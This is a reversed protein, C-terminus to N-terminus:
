VAMKILLGFNKKKVFKEMKQITKDETTIEVIKKDTAADIEGVTQRSENFIQRNLELINNVKDRFMNLQVQGEFQRGIYVNRFNHEISDAMGKDAVYQKIVPVIEETVIDNLESESVNQILDMETTVLTDDAANLGALTPAIYPVLSGGGTGGVALTPTGPTFQPIFDSGGGDGAWAYAPSPFPEMSRAAEIISDKAIKATTKLGNYLAQRGLYISQAVDQQSVFASGAIGGALGGWAFGWKYPDDSGFSQAYVISGLNKAQDIANTIGHKAACATFEMVAYSAAAVIIYSMAAPPCIVAIVVALTAGCLAGEGARLSFYDALRFPQTGAPDVQGLPNNLCYIYRNIDGNVGSPDKTLFRGITPDLYRCGCLILGTEHDTIYGVKGGYGYPDAPDDTGMILTGYADYYGTALVHGTADLRQLM